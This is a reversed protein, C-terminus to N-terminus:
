DADSFLGAGTGTGGTTGNIVGTVFWVPDETCIVEVWSGIGCAGNAANDDLTLTNVDGSAEVVTSDNDNALQYLAGRLMDGTTDTTDATKIIIPDTMNATVIWKYHLGAAPAPLTYTTAGSDSNIFFVKGSMAATLGVAAGAAETVSKKDGVIAGTGGDGIVINTGVKLDGQADITVRESGATAFGLVNSGSKYIGCYESGDFSLSPAAASGDPLRIPKDTEFVTGDFAIEATTNNQQTWVLKNINGLKKQKIRSM